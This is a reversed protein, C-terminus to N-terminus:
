VPPGADEASGRGVDGRDGGIGLKPILMGVRERYQRYREGFQVLLDREELWIGVLIYATTLVAFLLHGFSMRPTAWFALIFGAYIPHRLWRCLFPTACSPAPPRRGTLRAFGQTLGFLEFHSILFTSVLVM